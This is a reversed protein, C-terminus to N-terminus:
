GFKEAYHRAMDAYFKSPIKESSALLIEYAVTKEGRDGADHAKIIAEGLERSGQEYRTKMADVLEGFSDENLPLQQEVCSGLQEVILSFSRHVDENYIAKRDPKELDSWQLLMEFLEDVRM